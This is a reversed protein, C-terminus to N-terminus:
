GLYRMASHCHWLVQRGGIRQRLYSGLWAGTRVLPHLSFGLPAENEPPRPLPWIRAYASTDFGRDANHLKIPLDRVGFLVGPSRLTGAQDDIAECHNKHASLNDLDIHIQKTWRTQQVIGTLFEIFEVSTHRKAKKGTVKGWKVDLAACRALAYPRYASLDTVSRAGTLNETLERNKNADGVPNSGTNGGHFYGTTEYSVSFIRYPHSSFAGETLRSVIRPGHNSWLFRARVFANSEGVERCTQVPQTLRSSVSRSHDPKGSQSM